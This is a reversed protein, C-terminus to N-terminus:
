DVKRFRYSVPQATAETILFGRFRQHDTCLFYGPCLPQPDSPMNERKVYKEHDGDLTITIYYGELEIAESDMYSPVVYRGKKANWAGKLVEKINRDGYTFRRDPFLRLTGEWVEGFGGELPDVMKYTGAVIMNYGTKKMEGDFDFSKKDFSIESICLDRYVNGAFVQDISLTLTKATVTKPLSVWLAKEKADEIDVIQGNINMRMVRANKDYYGPLNIGNAIFFGSVRVDRKFTITISQGKGNNGVAWCTLLKGDILNRVNYRDRRDTLTGSASISEIYENSAQPTCQVLFVTGTLIFAAIFFSPFMHTIRSVM